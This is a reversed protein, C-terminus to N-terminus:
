RPEFEVSVEDVYHTADGEWIVSTGVAVAGTAAGARLFARRLM